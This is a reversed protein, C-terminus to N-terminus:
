RAWPRIASSPARSPRSEVFEECGGDASEIAALARWRASRENRSREGSRLGPPCGPRLPDPSAGLVSGSRVSVTAAGVPQAPQSASRPPATSAPM